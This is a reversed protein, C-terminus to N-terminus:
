LVMAFCIADHDRGYLPHPFHMCDINRPLYLQDLIHGLDHTAENVVHRYHLGLLYKTFINTSMGQFHFNFDGCLILNESNTINRVSQVAEILHSLSCSQSRYIVAISCYGLMSILIQLNECSYQEFIVNFKSYVAVGKGKGRCVSSFCNYNPIKLSSLDEERHLWTETICILDAQLLVNDHLIDQFHKRLSSTNFFCVKPYQHQYWFHNQQTINLAKSKLTMAVEKAKKDARVIQRGRSDFKPFSIFHLQEPTQVRGLIVYAQASEFVTSLDSVLPTPSEITQGQFKHATSAWSLRIPFQILTSRSTNKSINGIQYQFEIPTIAIASPHEPIPHEEQRRIGVKNNDFKVLLSKIKNSISREVGVITGRVGNTLLDSTDINYTLSVKAGIKIQLEAMLPTGTVIGSKDIKFSSKTKNEKIFAPISILEGGLEYLKMANFQAVTSNDGFIYVADKPYINSTIIRKEFYSLITESINGFRIENLIEAYEKATGQRHNMQLEISDFKEWLNNLAAYAQLHANKPLEFIYRARVPRLQLLDGFLIVSVGGFDDENQKIEQMRKHFNYLLNSSIMSMEDIIVLFLNSFINRLKDRKEDSLPTYADGFSLHFASHMTMGDILGAAAGTPACRIVYPRDVFDGPKKFYYECWDSISHIM